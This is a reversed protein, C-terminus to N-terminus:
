ATTIDGAYAIVRQLVAPLVAASLSGAAVGLPSGVLGRVVRNFRFKGDFESARRRALREHGDLRGTELMELAAQGAMEGGRLAFRVGDGTIPDIFGAADGALLLGPVGAGMADVGMPGLSVVPRVLRAGSFRERLAPDDAVRDTLLAAPRAFLARQNSVVCVNALGGPVPAVGIYHDRRVHMEGFATLSGVNEFYGGVVWRRPKRAAKALRLSVALASRRGDAAITVTAPVCLSKGHRGAVMLGRVRTSHADDTVIPGRVTVQPDFQVGADVAADVLAADLDRRSLAWAEPATADQAYRGTITIGYLGTVIMGDIPRSHARARDALGLRRLLRVAGPNLTDGCLKDRPFAARDVLQVTAGARALVLAAVAGAPGAGAIAVDLTTM